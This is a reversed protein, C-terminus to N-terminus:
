AAAPATSQTRAPLSRQAGDDGEMADDGELENKKDMKFHRAFFEKVLRQFLVGARSRAGQKELDEDLLLECEVGVEDLRGKLHRGFAPHHIGVGPGAGDPIPVDKDRYFLFAPPDDPTVHCIPSAEDYLAQARPSGAEEPDLRYFFRFSPHEHVRGGVVEKMVRPDLTSQGAIAAACVLRSSEREVPDDSEPRALDDHYCLWLTIAAGASSGCAAIRNKDLNWEPARSRLFQIARAADHMPAPFPDTLALRYNATAVSIGADLCVRLLSVPLAKKDGGVFGGGHFYIVLPAPSESRAMWLDLVNRADPGYPLNSRDPKPKAGATTGKGSREGRKQEDQAEAAISLCLVVAALGILTRSSKM